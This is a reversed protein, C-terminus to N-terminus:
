KQKLVYLEVRRNKAKNSPSDNPVYPRYEGYGHAALRREEVIRTSEMYRLVSVARAVSLEWNSPFRQTRIPTDDTHGEVQLEEVKLTKIVDVILELVNLYRPQIESRGPPFLVEDQLVFRVGKSDWYVRVEETLQLEELKEILEDLAEEFEESEVAEREIVTQGTNPEMVGEGGRLSGMAKRFKVIEMTSFSVLLIFFVLLLSMLDGYTTMWGPATPAEPPKSKSRAM